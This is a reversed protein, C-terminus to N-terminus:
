FQNQLWSKYSTAVTGSSNAPVRHWAIFHEMSIKNIHQSVQVVDFSLADHFAKNRYHWLLDCSVAEFIQLMHHDTILIGLSTPSIFFEVWEVMYILSILLRLIWPGFPSNCWVVRSFTSNSFRAKVRLRQRRM